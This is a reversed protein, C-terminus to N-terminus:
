LRLVGFGYGGRGMTGSGCLRSYDYVCCGLGMGVGDWRGRGVCGLTTMSAAGWVWVWGTGDDGVWMASLRPDLGPYQPFVPKNLLPM